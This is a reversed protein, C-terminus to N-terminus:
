QLPGKQEAVVTPAVAKFFEGDSVWHWDPNVKEEPLGCNVCETDQGRPFRHWSQCEPKATNLHQADPLSDLVTFRVGQFTFSQNQGEPVMQTWFAFENKAYVVRGHWEIEVPLPEDCFACQEGGVALAHGSVECDWAGVGKRREEARAQIAANWIDCRCPRVAGCSECVEADSHHENQIYAGCSPCEGGGEHPAFWFNESCGPCTSTKLHVIERVLNAPILKDEGEVRTAAPDEMELPVRKVHCRLIMTRNARSLGNVRGLWTTQDGLRIVLQQEDDIARQLEVMNFLDDIEVSDILGLELAASWWSQTEGLALEIKNFPEPESPDIAVIRRTPGDTWRVDWGLEAARADARARLEDPIM